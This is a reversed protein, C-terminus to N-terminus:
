LHPKKYRRMSLSNAVVSFSSFAMAAAAVMPNLLFGNVSYLVGAAIPIAVLNYFFAWFLNQKIKRITYRSLDIATVIQRLDDRLLVIDGAEMAIDTGSGLAIGVDAEALAPADNIGDGIMAVKENKERLSRIVEEKHQPLVEARVEDLSLSHAIAEATNKNDGTLLILRKGMKKLYRITQEVFPKLMDGVAILGVAKDNVVVVMVTKGEKEWQEADILIEPSLNINKKEAFRRNTILLRQSGINGMVGKGPLAIFNDVKELPLSKETAAEFIAQGIPHESYKEVSAALRLIEEASRQHYGRYDMLIPKGRTITGTKDFVIVTVKYAIELVSPNRILIGNEAAVGMSVVLATPTALGLACPCAVILMSVFTTFAFLFDEGVALWVSFVAIAALFITPVFISAIKDAVEQIPVKHALAEKVLNIIQFLLTDQGVRIAEFKFTGTKNVTGCFVEKGPTKDQPISEGTIMSEDVSSFGEIVIGDAPIREGPKIIVIDGIQLQDIPILEEKGQRVVLATNPRLYFLKKIAASTKGRASLELYQGLLIFTVIVAATEFYLHLNSLQSRTKFYAWAVFVSYLYASAVGVSVLTYMNAKRSHLLDIWGKQFFSLSCIIVLTALILQIFINHKALLTPLPMNTASATSLIVLPLSLLFSLWFRLRLSKIDAKLLNETSVVTEKETNPIRYGLNRIIKELQEKKVKKPNYRVSVQGLTLNGNVELVGAKAKLASEITLVCTACHMGGVPIVIHKEPVFYTQSIEEQSEAQKFKELCHRSCFYYNIGRHHLCLQETEEIQRGCIPDIAM